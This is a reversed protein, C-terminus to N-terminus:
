HASLRVSCVSLKIGNCWEINATFDVSTRAVTLSESNGCRSHEKVMHANERAIRREEGPRAM